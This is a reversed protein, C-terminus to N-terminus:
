VVLKYDKYECKCINYKGAWVVLTKNWFTEVDRIGDDM